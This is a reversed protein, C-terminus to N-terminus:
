LSSSVNGFYHLDIYLFSIWDFCIRVLIAKYAPQLWILAYSGAGCVYSGSKIVQLCVGDASRM